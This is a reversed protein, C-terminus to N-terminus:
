SEKEDSNEELMPITPALDDESFSHIYQPMSFLICMFTIEPKELPKAMIGNKQLEEIAIDMRRLLDKESVEKQAEWMVLYCANEKTDQDQETFTSIFNMERRILQLRIPDNTSNQLSLLVDLMGSINISRPLLIMKFPKKEPVLARCADNIFRKEEKKTMLTPDNSKIQAYTFIFKDKTYLIRGDIDQVNVFDQATLKDASIAPAKRIISKM